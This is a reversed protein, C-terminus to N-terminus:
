DSKVEARLQAEAEWWNQDDRGPACGSALWLARAREAVREHTLSSTRSPSAEASDAVGSALPQVGIAERIAVVTGKSGAITQTAPSTGGRSSAKSRNKM